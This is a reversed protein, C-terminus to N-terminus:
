WQYISGNDVGTHCSSICAFSLTDPNETFCLTRTPVWTPSKKMDILKVKTSKTLQTQTNSYPYFMLGITLISLYANGIYFFKKQYKNSNM